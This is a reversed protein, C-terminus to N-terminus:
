DTKVELQNDVRLVGAAAVAKAEIAKREADNAVVGRLTTVGDSTIIKCNKASMSMNADQVVARRIAATIQIDAVSESQDFPTVTSGDRDRENRATNDAAPVKEVKPHTAAGDTRHPAADVPTNGCACAGIVLLLASWNRAIM